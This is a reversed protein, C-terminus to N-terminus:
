IAFTTEGPQIAYPTGDVVLTYAANATVTVAGDKAVIDTLVDGFRLGRIGVEGSLEHPFSWEVTRGFADVRYFGLVHEILLSIPGLASWGCFDPRVTADGTANVGPRPAEPAYCEWITHPTYERYTASMHDLIRRSLARAETHYGYAAIGFLAIYATPLWLSGRWYRGDREYNGDSRSLSLVPVDGGLVAPDLLKELMARAQAQSAIGAALAWYSAPTVIKYFDHTSGSIDYYFGDEDDWYYRNVTAAKEAYRAEWRASEERDGVLAFLRGICRASLAQQCIADVWLMEPPAPRHQETRAGLRGRPTNDMGSCRGEWRYGIEEAVLATPLFVGDPATPAHLSELWDYHKQLACRRYLLDRIHDLDGSLLANEYEAFAFLPPNDAIHIKIEYPVGPTARTWAPEGEGPIVAPLHGDGHLVDYFNRLSLVGPLEGKAYKCFLSMFCTDWIWIQTDCFAEDMYPSQPMGPIARVHDLALDWALDYLELYAPAETLIPRPLRDRLPTSGKANDKM